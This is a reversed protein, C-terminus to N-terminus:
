RALRQRAIFGGHTPKGPGAPTATVARRSQMRPSASGVRACRKQDGRKGIQVIRKREGVPRGATSRIRPANRALLADRNVAVVVHVADRRGDNQPTRQLEEARIDRV